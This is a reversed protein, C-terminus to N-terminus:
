YRSFISASFEAEDDNSINKIYIKSETISALDRVTFGKSEDLPYIEGINYLLNYVTPNSDETLVIEDPDYIIDDDWNYHVIMETNAYAV